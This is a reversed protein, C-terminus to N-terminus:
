SAGGLKNLINKVQIISEKVPVLKDDLQVMTQAGSALYEAYKSESTIEQFARIHDVNFILRAGKVGKLGIFM